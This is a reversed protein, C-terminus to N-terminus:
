QKFKLHDQFFRLNISVFGLLSNLVPNQKVNIEQLQDIHHWFGVGSQLITVPLGPTVRFHNHDISFFCWFFVCKQTHMLKFGVHISENVKFIRIKVM